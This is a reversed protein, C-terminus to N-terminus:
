NSEKNSEQESRKRWYVTLTQICLTRIDGRQLAHERIPRLAPDCQAMNKQIKADVVQQALQDAEVQQNQFDALIPALADANDADIADIDGLIDIMVGSLASRYMVVVCGCVEPDAAQIGSVGLLLASLLLKKM